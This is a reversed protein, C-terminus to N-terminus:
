KPQKLVPATRRRRSAGLAALGITTLFLTGPEPVAATAYSVGSDTIYSAGPTLVDLNFRLTAGAHASLQSDSVVGAAVQLSGSLPESTGALAQFTFTQPSVPPAQCIGVDSIGLSGAGFGVQGANQAFNGFGGNCSPSGGTIGVSSTMTLTALVDVFTGPTGLFTVTDAFSMTELGRSAEFNGPAGLMALSDGALFGMASTGSMAVDSRSAVQHYSQSYSTQPLPGVSTNVVATSNVDVEATYSVSFGAAAAGSFALLSLACSPALLSRLISRM